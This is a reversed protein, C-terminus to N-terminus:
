KSVVAIDKDPDWYGGPLEKGRVGVYLTNVNTPDVTVLAIDTTQWLKLDSTAMYGIQGGIHPVAAMGLGLWSHWLM